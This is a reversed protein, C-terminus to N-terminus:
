KRGVREGRFVSSHRGQSQHNHDEEISKTKAGQCIAKIYTTIVSYEHTM